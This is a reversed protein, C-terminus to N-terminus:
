EKHAGALLYAELGELDLLNDVIYNVKLEKPVLIMYKNARLFNEVLDDKTMLYEKIPLSKIKKSRLINFNRRLGAGRISSDKENVTFNNLKNLSNLCLCISRNIKSSRFTRLFDGDEDSSIYFGDQNKEVYLKDLLGDIKKNYSYKKRDKLIEEMRIRVIDNIDEISNSSFNNAKGEEAKEVHIKKTSKQIKEIQWVQGGLFIKDGVKIINSPSISGIKSRDNYVAYSDTLVFQNYFSGMKMLGETKIGTIYEGELREIYAEEEMYSKIAMFEDDDIDKFATLSKNLKNFEDLALGNNELLVSLIQHAFLDYAKRSARLKDLRGEKFLSIISLAQVLDWPSTAIQHLISKHTKRGSRGLRQALSLSSFCSGYQLISYVSGIDIGLELTSTACIIFKERDSNKAFDEIEKRRIKSVSSHHAFISYDLSDEKAKNKLKVAMEEVKERSNPFVLMSGEKAFNLIQELTKDGIEDEEIYSLSTLLENRSKDILIQTKRKNNFFGSALDYNEDGVSASLGIFRPDKQCYPLIRGLLSRLEGGRNGTLFSHIEDVIIFDLGSFLRRAEKNRNVFIAELSEPTILAIGSPNEMLRDKRTKSSEGHWSTVNISLDECMKEIRKFQDNILAILPSIYLIRLGTNFDNALSIAPLFAAETKGQATPAILILNDESSFCQKISAEQIKSLSPWANKYVYERMPRALLMYADM